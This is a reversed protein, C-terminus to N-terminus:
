FFFSNLATQIGHSERCSRHWLSSNCFAASTAKRSTIAVADSAKLPRPHGPIGLPIGLFVSSM